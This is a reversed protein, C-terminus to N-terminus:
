GRIPLFFLFQRISKYVSYNPTLHREEKIGQTKVKIQKLICKSDFSTSKDELYEHGRLGQQLAETCQGWLLYYLKVMNDGLIDARDM